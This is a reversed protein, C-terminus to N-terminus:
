MQAELGGQDHDLDINDFLLLWDRDDARGLWGMVSAVAADLDVARRGELFSTIPLSLLTATPLSPEPRKDIQRIGYLLRLSGAVQIFNPTAAIEYVHGTGQFFNGLFTKATKEDVTTSVYGDADTSQGNSAGLAHAFMSINPAVTLARSQGRPLFSGAKKIQEPTRTDARYVKFQGFCFSSLTLLYFVILNAYKAM